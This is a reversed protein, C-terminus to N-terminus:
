RGLSAKALSPTPSTYGLMREAEELGSQLDGLSILRSLDLGSAVLAKSFDSSVGTLIVNAGLLRAAEVARVLRSVIDLEMFPVGTVDIVVAKARYARIGNLLQQGLQDVRPKDIEGIVPLILLRPRVPLVPTSLKRITEEARAREIATALVNAIAQLFNIDDPTFKRRATTHAGLVGFPRDLGHIGVSVSSVVDHELLLAPPRFRTETGVDETVVPESSLLTYGSRSGPDASVRAQGVYGAKWGVGARLLLERGDPLLELINSYEVDLTQAIRAAVANMLDALNMRGLAIQGLEAIVAQQRARARLREETQKRETVDCFYIVIAQVSPEALLNTGVIEVWRWSGDRHRVRLQVSVTDSPKQLLESFVGQALERDDPHVLELENRGLLEETAYGLVRHTSPSAYVFDSNESVLAIADYSNEILSRFREQSQHYWEDSGYYSREALPQTRSVTESDGNEQGVRNSTRETDREDSEMPDINIRERLKM